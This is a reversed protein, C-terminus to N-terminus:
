NLLVKELKKKMDESSRLKAHFEKSTNVSPKPSESLVDSIEVEYQAKQDTGEKRVRFQVGEFVGGNNKRLEELPAALSKASIYFGYDSDTKIEKVQLFPTYGYATPTVDVESVIELEIWETDIKLFNLPKKGM